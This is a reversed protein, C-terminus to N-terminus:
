SDGASLESKWRCPRFAASLKRFAASFRSKEASSKVPPRCRLFDQRHEIDGACGIFDPGRWCSKQRMFPMPKVAQLDITGSFIQNEPRLNPPRAISDGFRGTSPFLQHFVQRAVSASFKGAFIKIAEASRRNQM